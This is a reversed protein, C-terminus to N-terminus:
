HEECKHSTASTPAVREKGATRRADRVGKSTILFCTEGRPRGSAKLLRAVRHQVVRNLLSPTMASVSAGATSHVVDEVCEHEGSPTESEPTAAFACSPVDYHHFALLVRTSLGHGWADGLAPVLVTQRTLGGNGERDELASMCTGKLSATPGRILKTTMHNSVVVAIQFSAALEELTTSCQYLLRSRQWLGHRSLTGDSSSMATSLSAGFGRSGSRSVDDLLFHNKEFADVFRFPMAVSDILVMRVPAAEAEEQQRDKSTMATPSAPAEVSNSGQAAAVGKNCSLWMPLSYLLALLDTLETVRIYQVRRLVLEATFEEQTHSATSAAIGSMSADARGEFSASRKRKRLASEPVASCDQAAAHFHVGVPPTTDERRQQVENKALITKVLSAATTAMQDLREAVFSGETDVFICAGGLGGFEVPMVASVALQMLLQTKGVGPPGSVETVGGVPVGGGLLTDLRQSFTTAHTACGCARQREAEAVIDRLSRCGPIRNATDNLLIRKDKNPPPSPSGKADSATFGAEGRMASTFPARLREKVLEHGRLAEVIEDVEIDTFFSISDISTVTVADKSSHLSADEGRQAIRRRLCRMMQALRGGECLDDESSLLRSLDSLYILGADQLKAKTATSLSASCEIMAM